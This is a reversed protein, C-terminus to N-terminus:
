RGAGLVDFLQRAIGEFIYNVGKRLELRHDQAVRGHAARASSVCGKLEEVSIEGLDLRDLRIQDHSLRNQARPHIRAFFPTGVVGLACIGLQTLPADAKVPADLSQDILLLQSTM